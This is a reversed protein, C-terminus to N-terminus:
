TAACQTTTTSGAASRVTGGTRLFRVLRRQPLEPFRRNSGLDGSVRACLPGGWVPFARRLLRPRLYFVCVSLEELIFERRRM